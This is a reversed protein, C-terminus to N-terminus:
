INIGAPQNTDGRVSLATLSGSAFLSGNLACLFRVFFRIIEEDSYNNQTTKKIDKGEGKVDPMFAQFPAHSRVNTTPAYPILRLIVSTMVLFFLLAKTMATYM